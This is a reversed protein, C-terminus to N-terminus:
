TNTAGDESAMIDEIVYAVRTPILAEPYFSEVLDLVAGASTLGCLSALTRIDDDDRDLRAALVKMALLYDPSAVQVTLAPHDLVTTANPDDGPLFAKVADNLWDEPLGPHRHAVRAAAAYIALKPEFVGDLDRTARRGDHALAMAAGGVLFLRGPTNARELEDALETLLDRIDDPGLLPAM